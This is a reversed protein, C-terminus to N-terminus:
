DILLPLVASYGSAFLHSMLWDISRTLHLLECLISSPWAPQFGLEFGPQERGMCAVARPSPQPAACKQGQQETGQQHRLLLRLFPCPFPSSPFSVSPARLPFHERPLGATAPPCSSNGRHGPREPVKTLHHTNFSM